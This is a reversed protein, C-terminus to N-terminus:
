GDVELVPEGLWAALTRRARHLHTRVTAEGCGLVGAVEDISLEDVVMLAIVQAQRKPLRRVARWVEDAPAPVEPEVDTRKALRLVLKVENASRRLSSVSRNIVVRRLWAGPKDYGAVTSWHRHAALFADQAIEEALSWRGTLSWALRVMANYQEEYFEDFSAVVVDPEAVGPLSGDSVMDIYWV